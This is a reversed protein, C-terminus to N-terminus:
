CRHNPRRILGARQRVQDNVADVTAALGTLSVALMEVAQWLKRFTNIAEGKRWGHPIPRNPNLGPATGPRSPVKQRNRYPHNRVVPQREALTRKIEPLLNRILEPRSWEDVANLFHRCGAPEGLRQDAEWCAEAFWEELEGVRVADPPQGHLLAYCVPCCCEVAWDQTCQLPPPNTTAGTILRADDRELAAALGELGRTTFQPALGDRWAKQWAQVILIDSDDCDGYIGCRDNLQVSTM